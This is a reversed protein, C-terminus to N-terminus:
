STTPSPCGRIPWCARADGVLKPSVETTDALIMELFPAALAIKGEARYSQAIEWRAAAAAEGKPQAALNEQYISRAQEYKKEQQLQAAKAMAAALQKADTM